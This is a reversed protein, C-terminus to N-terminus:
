LVLTKFNLVSDILRVNGFNDTQKIKSDCTYKKVKKM